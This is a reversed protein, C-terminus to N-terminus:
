KIKLFYFAFMLWSKVASVGTMKQKKYEVRNTLVSSQLDTYEAVVSYQICEATPLCRFAFKHRWLNYRAAKAFSQNSRPEEWATARRFRTQPAEVLRFPPRGRTGLLSWNQFPNKRPLQRRTVARSVFPSFLVSIRPLYRPSQSLPLHTDNSRCNTNTHATPFNCFAVIQKTMGTQGDAHFLEVGVPRIKM